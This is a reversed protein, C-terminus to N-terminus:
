AESCDEIIRSDLSEALVPACEISLAQGYGELAPKAQSFGPSVHM